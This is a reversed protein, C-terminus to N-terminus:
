VALEAIQNGFKDRFMPRRGVVQHALRRVMPQHRAMFRLVLPRM